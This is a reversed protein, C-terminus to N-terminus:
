SCCGITQDSAFESDRQAIEDHSIRIPKRKIIPYRTSTSLKQSIDEFLQQVNEGTVASTFHRILFGDSFYDCLSQYCSICEEAMYNDSDAVLDIKNGVIAILPMKTSHIEKIMRGWRKELQVITSPNTVDFVLIISAANKFYMPVISNFQEQGATDWIELTVTEGIEDVWMKKSSFSAGITSTGYEDIYGKQLRTMLSSKGVNTQGILAVKYKKM